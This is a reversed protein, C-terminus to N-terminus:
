KIFKFTSLIQNMNSESIKHSDASYLYYMITINKEPMVYIITGITNDTSNLPRFYKEAKHGDIVIEGKKELNFKQNAELLNGGAISFAIGSGRTNIALPNGFSVDGTATLISPYKVEFGAKENRYTKWDKTEAGTQSIDFPGYLRPGSDGYDYVFYYSGCDVISVSGWGGVAGTNFSSYNEFVAKKDGCYFNNQSDVIKVVINKASITWEEPNDTTILKTNWLNKDALVIYKNTLASNLYSTPKQPRSYYYVAVGIIIVVLTIILPVVFGKNINKM